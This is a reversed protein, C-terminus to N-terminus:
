DNISDPIVELTSPDGTVTLTGSWVWCMRDASNTPNVIFYWDGTSDRGSVETSANMVLNGLPNSNRTPNKRCTTDQVASVTVGPEPTTTPAAETPLTDTEVTAAPTSTETASPESTPTQTPTASPLETASPLVTPSITSTATAEATPILELGSEGRVPQDTATAAVEPIVFQTLEITPITELTATPEVAQPANTLPELVPIDTQVPSAATTLTVQFGASPLDVGKCGALTAALALTFVAGGIRGPSTVGDEWEIRTFAM